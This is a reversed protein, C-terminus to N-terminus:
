GCYLYKTFMACSVSSLVITSHREEPIDFDAADADPEADWVEIYFARKGPSKPNDSSQFFNEISTLVRNRSEPSMERIDVSHASALLDVFPGNQKTSNTLDNQM